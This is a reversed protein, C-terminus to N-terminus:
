VAFPEPTAAFTRIEGAMMMGFVAVLMPSLPTLVAWAVQVAAGASLATMVKMPAAEVSKRCRARMLFLATRISVASRSDSGLPSFALTERLLMGSVIREYLYALPSVPAVDNRASRGHCAFTLGNTRKSTTRM